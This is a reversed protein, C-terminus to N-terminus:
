GGLFSEGEYLFRYQDDSEWRAGLDRGSSFSWLGLGEGRRGFAGFFEGGAEGMGRWVRLMELTRSPPWLATAFFNFPPPLKPLPIVKLVLAIEKARDACAAALHNQPKYKEIIANVEARYHGIERSWPTADDYIADGHTVLVERDALWIVGAGGEPDHNGRLLDVTVGRMRALELLEEFLQRAEERALGIKESSGFMARLCLTILEM